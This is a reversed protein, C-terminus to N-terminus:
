KGPETKEEDVPGCAIGLLTWFLPAVLIVSIGCISTLLYGSISFILAPFIWRKTQKGSRCARVLAIVTLALYCLLSPIGRTAAIYLLDNYPRDALNPNYSVEASTSLLAYTYNDAGTGLLPYKKIISVAEGSLYGHVAPASQIEWGDAKRLSYPGATKLRYFGDAWVIAGDHLVYGNEAPVHDGITRTNNISPAFASLLVSCLMVAILAGLKPLPAAANKKVLILVVAGILLIAAGILAALCQTKLLFFCFVAASITHFLRLKKEQAFFAATISVAGLMTLLMAFAVPNGTLGSPLFVRELLIPELKQFSSPIAEIPLSQLLAWFCGALGLVTVGNLFRIITQEARLLTGTFFFCVYFILALLGENRGYQGFFGDNYNYCILFSIAGLLLIAGCLCGPLCIDKKSYQQKSIGIIALIMALVGGIAFASSYTRLAVVLNALLNGELMQEALEGEANLTLDFLWMSAFGLALAILLGNCCYRRLQQPTMNVIFNSKESTGFITKAM